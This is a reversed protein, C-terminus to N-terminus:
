AAVISARGKTTTSCWHALIEWEACHRLSRRMPGRLGECAHCPGHGGGNQLKLAERRIRSYAIALEWVM